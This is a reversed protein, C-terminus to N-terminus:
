RRGGSGLNQDFSEAGSFTNSMTTVRYVPWGSIDQNVRIADAFTGSIKTASSVDAHNLVDATADPESSPGIADETCGLAACACQLVSATFAASRFM